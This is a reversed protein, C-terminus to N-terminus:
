FFEVQAGFKAWTTTIIKKFEDHQKALEAAGNAMDMFLNLNQILEPSLDAVCYYQDTKFNLVVPYEATAAVKMFDTMLKKPSKDKAIIDTQSPDKIDRIFSRGTGKMMSGSFYYGTFNATDQNGTKLTIGFTCYKEKPKSASAAASSSGESLQVGGENVFRVNGAVVADFSKILATQMPEAAKGLLTAKACFALQREADTPMLRWRMAMMEAFAYLGRTSVTVDSEGKLFKERVENAFEILKKTLGVPIEVKNPNLSPDTIKQVLYNQIATAEVLEPLYNKEIM